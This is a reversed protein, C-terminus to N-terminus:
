CHQSSFGVSLHTYARPQPVSAPTGTESVCGRMGVRWYKATDPQLEIVERGTSKNKSDKEIKPLSFQNETNWLTYCKSKLIVKLSFVHTLKFLLLLDITLSGPGLCSDPLADSRTPKASAVPSQLPRCSEWVDKM